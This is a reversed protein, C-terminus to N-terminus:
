DLKRSKLGVEIVSLLESYNGLFLTFTLFVVVDIKLGRNHNFISKWAIHPDPCVYDSPLSASLILHFHAAASLLILKLVLLFFEHHGLTFTYHKM